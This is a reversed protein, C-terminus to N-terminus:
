EGQIMQLGQIYYNQMFPIQSNKDQLLLSQQQARQMIKKPTMRSLEKDSMQALDSLAANQGLTRAEGQKDLQEWHINGNADRWYTKNGGLARPQMAQWKALAMNAQALANRQRMEEKAFEQAVQWREASARAEETANKADTVSKNGEATIRNMENVAKSFDPLKGSFDANAFGAALVDWVNYPNGEYQPAKVKSTDIDRMGLNIEPFPIGEGGQGGAVMGAGGGPGGQALYTELWTKKPTSEKDEGAGFLSLIYDGISEGTNAAWSLGFEGANQPNEAAHYIYDGTAVAAGLPDVIQQGPYPLRDTNRNPLESRDKILGEKAGQKALGQNIAQAVQRGQQALKYPLSNEVRNQVNEQSFYERIQNDLFSPILDVM